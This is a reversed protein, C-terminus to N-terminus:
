TSADGGLGPSATAGGKPDLATVVFSNDGTFQIHAVLDADQGDLQGKVECDFEEGKKAKVGGPCTVKADKVNAQSQVLDKVKDEVQGSKSCGALLFLGAAIGAAIKRRV